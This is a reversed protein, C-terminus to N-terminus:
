QVEGLITLADPDTYDLEVAKRAAKLAEARQNLNKHVRAKTAWFKSRKSDYNIAKDIAALAQRQHKKQYMRQAWDDGLQYIHAYQYAEVYLAFASLSDVSMTVDDVPISAHADMTRAINLAKTAQGLKTFWDHGGNKAELMLTWAIKLQVQAQATEAHTSPRQQDRTPLPLERTQYKEHLFKVAMYPLTFPYVFVLKLCFILFHVFFEAM